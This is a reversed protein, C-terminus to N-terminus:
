EPFHHCSRDRNRYGAVKDATKRRKYLLPQMLAGLKAMASAVSDFYLGKGPSHITYYGQPIRYFNSMTDARYVGVGAM